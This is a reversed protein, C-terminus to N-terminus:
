DFSVIASSSDGLLGCNLTTLRPGGAPSGAPAVGAESFKCTSKPLTETVEKGDAKRGEPIVAQDEDQGDGPSCPASSNRCRASSSTGSSLETSSSPSACAESVTMGGAPQALSGGDM